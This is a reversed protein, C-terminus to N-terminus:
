DNVGLFQEIKRSQNLAIGMASWYLKGTWAKDTRTEIADFFKHLNRVLLAETSCDGLKNAKHRLTVNRTYYRNALQRLQTKTRM